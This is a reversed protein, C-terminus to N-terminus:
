PPQPPPTINPDLDGSGVNSVGFDFKEEGMVADWVRNGSASEM